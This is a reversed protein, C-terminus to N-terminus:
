GTKLDLRMLANPIVVGRRVPERREVVVFGFREFFGQATRSVHSTVARLGLARAEALIHNMLRTGLGRQPHEGSVFFHDILGDAQVDAYAVVRGDVEVVFPDIGRIRDAWLASDLDRPAWAEIQEPSYDRSAVRHIASYFVEFLAAEEGPRYRRIQVTREQAGANGGIVHTPATSAAM